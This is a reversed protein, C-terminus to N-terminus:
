GRPQQQSRAWARQMQFLGVLSAAIAAPDLLLVWHRQEHLLRSFGFLVWALGLALRGGTRSLHSPSLVTTRGGQQLWAGLMTTAGVCLLFVGLWTDSVDAM